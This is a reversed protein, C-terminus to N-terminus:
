LNNGIRIWRTFKFYDRFFNAALAKAFLCHGICKLCFPQVEQKRLFMQVWLEAGKLRESFKM